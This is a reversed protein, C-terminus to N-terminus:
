PSARWAFRYRAAGGLMHGDVSVSFGCRRYFPVAPELTDGELEAFGSDYRVFDVLKRGIGCRRTAPDVALDRVRASSVRVVQIGIVGVISCRKEYGFLRSDNSRAYDDAISPARHLAEDFARHIQALALLRVVANERERGALDAISM